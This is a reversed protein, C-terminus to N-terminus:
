RKSKENMPNIIEEICIKSWNELSGKIKHLEEITLFSLQTINQENKKVDIGDLEWLHVIGFHVRGVDNSDDNILGITQRKSVPSSINIEEEVERTIANQYIDNIFLPDNNFLSDDIQSIHGGIGISGQLILREEGAKKGRVYHLYKNKYKILVYPIIQKYNYNSEAEKRRMFMCNNNNLIASLYNKYRVNAGQFRGIEDLLDTKFVLVQEERM